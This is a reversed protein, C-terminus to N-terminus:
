KVDMATVRLGVGLFLPVLYKTNSIDKLRISSHQHHSLGCVVYKKRTDFSRPLAAHDDSRVERVQIM